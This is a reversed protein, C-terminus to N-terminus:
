PYFKKRLLIDALVKDALKENHTYGKFNEVEMGLDRVYITSIVDYLPKIKELELISLMFTWDIKKSHTVYMTGLDLIHRFSIEKSAFHEGAHRLVFLSNWTASPLYSNEIPSEVLRDNIVDENLM